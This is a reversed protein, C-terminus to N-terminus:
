GWLDTAVVRWTDKLGPGRNVALSRQHMAQAVLRCEDENVDDVHLLGTLETFSNSIM